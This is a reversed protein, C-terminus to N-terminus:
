GNDQEYGSKAGKSTSMTWWVSCGGRARRVDMWDNSGDDAIEIIEDARLNMQRERARAYQEALDDYSYFVGPRTKGILSPHGRRETPFLTQL